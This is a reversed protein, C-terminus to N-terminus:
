AGAEPRRRRRAWPTALAGLLVLLWGASSGTSCGCGAGGSSPNRGGVDAEELAADLPRDPLAAGDISTAVDAGAADAAGGDLSADAQVEAADDATSADAGPADVAGGDLSADARTEAADPIGGDAGMEGSCSPDLVGKPYVACEGDIDDQDLTRKSTEGLPATSYMSAAAAASHDLGILHGVEHVLTNLVDTAVCSVAPQPPPSSCPPGDSTTFVFGAGNLEIDADIIEGTATRYSLTTLAIASPSYDWCGHQSGCSGDQFCPDSPALVQACSSERWVVLNLNDAAGPHFGVDIRPTTGLDRFRLDTCSAQAWTEFALRAAELSSEGADKSGQGNIAFPINSACWFLAPGSGGFARSRQWAAAPRPTAVAWLAAMAPLLRGTRLSM